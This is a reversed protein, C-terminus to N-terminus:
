LPALMLRKLMRAGLACQSRDIFGLLSEKYHERAKPLIELGTLTPLTVQMRGSDDSIRLPRVHGFSEHKQTTGVYYALAGIPGLVESFKKITNDRNHGPVIKDIWPSSVETSFYDSSLHTKLIGEHECLRNLGPVDDWQGMFTILERPSNLRLKELFANEDVC